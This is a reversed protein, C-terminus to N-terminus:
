ISFLVSFRSSDSGSAWPEASSTLCRLPTPPPSQPEVRDMLAFLRCHPCKFGRNAPTVGEILEGKFAKKCHPCSTTSSPWVAVSAVRGTRRARVLRRDTSRLASFGYLCPMFAAAGPTDASGITRSSPTRFLKPSLRTRSPISTVTAGPSTKVIM